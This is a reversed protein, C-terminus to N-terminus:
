VFKVDRVRAYLTTLSTETTKKDLTSNWTHTPFKKKVDVPCIVM